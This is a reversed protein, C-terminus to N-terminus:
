GIVEHEVPLQENEKKCNTCLRVYKGDAKFSKGCKLCDRIVKEPKELEFNKPYNYKYNAM